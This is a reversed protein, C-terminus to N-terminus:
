DITAQEEDSLKVLPSPTVLYDTKDGNKKRTITIDYGTPNGWDPNNSLEEIARRVTVLNLTWLQLKKDTLNYVGVARFGRPTTPKGSKDPDGTKPIRELSAGRQPKQNM